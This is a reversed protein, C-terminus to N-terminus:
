LLATLQEFYQKSIPVQRPEECDMVAVIQGDAERTLVKVHKPNVYYSRHCRVLGHASANEEQSKMSNRVQFTKVKGGELYNIRIYNFDAAIFLIAGSAISLKLRKHEDYFKVLSDDSAAEKSSIDEERNNIIQWMVMFVYPYVLTLFVLEMCDGLCDFFPQAGAMFLVTYLATFCSAAFAEGFCWLAYQWWQLSTKKVLVYFATRGLLMTLFIICSIMLLHFGHGLGGLEYLSKVNFPDYLMCFGMFFAPMLVVYVLQSKWTKTIRMETKMGYLALNIRWVLPYVTLFWIKM